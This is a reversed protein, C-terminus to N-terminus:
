AAGGHWAPGGIWGIEDLTYERTADGPDRIDRVRAPAYENTPPAIEEHVLQPGTQELQEYDGYSDDAEFATADDYVAPRPREYAVERSVAGFADKELRAVEAPDAGHLRKLALHERIADNLDSM